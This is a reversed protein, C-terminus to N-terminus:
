SPPPLLFGDLHGELVLDLRGTTRGSRLDRVLPSPGLRYRRVLTRQAPAAQEGTRALRARLLVRAKDLAEARTGGTWVTVATMTPRHFLRVERTLRPLLRGETAPPVRVEIELDAAPFEREEPFPWVDVHIMERHPPGDQKRGRGLAHLGAEGALLAYAGAGSIQLALVDERTEPNRRDDLVVTELGRRHALERYMRALLDVGDLGGGQRSAQRVVVLADGLAREDRCDVLFALRGLENELTDLHEDCRELDRETLRPRQTRECEAALKVRTTELHRLIEDLRYVRDYLHRLLGPENRADAATTRALLETKLESLPAARGTLEEVRALLNEAREVVSRWGPPPAPERTTEAPEPPEIEIDVRDGRPTIRLLSGPAAKGEAIVRAVPLLVLREITRKLPRAGYALSYGEQLLLPLVGPDVDVALGRRRIGNRELVRAIERQAIREATERALPLFVVIRDIRNLFEPRFSHGIERLIVDRDPPPPTERLLGLPLDTAVASGVNSTMIIITRRFDTTRGQADTLRGADFIQLCLNFVNPHAKEVEDLLVVAFPQERVKSTLLGPESSYAGGGILREYAEYAAFESMDLRFMRAPDGFLHEALARALETKGVGTPGVFLFVGLPKNPDNLGAKVLTVLDMMADVAEPQGMVRSEFFRRVTTRDLAAADHLLHLPMGTSRSITALIDAEGIPEKRGAVMALVLRFLGVAKGPHVSATGVLDSLDLLRELTEPDIRVGAEEAVRKLIYRTEDVTAPQVEVTTFLRRLSRNAGLGRRFGELSSEGLLAVDGREIAPALAAAVNSNSSSTTGIWALQEVNPVYLIVPRPHKVAQVLDRLRTEWEGIWKTDVLFDQPSMRLVVAPRDPDERLRHVLEHVAATKGVGAEGLLVAARPPPGFLIKRVAEIPGDLGHGRPLSGLEAERTLVTGFKQLADLDVFDRLHDDLWKRLLPHSGGPIALTRRRIEGLVPAPPVTGPLRGATLQLHHELSNAANQQVFPDVDEALGVLLAPMALPSDLDMLATALDQRVFSSDDARFREVLDPHCGPRAKCAWVAGQRITVEADHLLNRALMDAPWSPFDQLAFVLQQRVPFQPDRSLRELVALVGTDTCQLLGAATIAVRRMLEDAAQAFEVLIRPDKGAQGRLAEVLRQWSEHQGSRAEEVLKELLENM